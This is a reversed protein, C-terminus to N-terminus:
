PERETEPWLRWSYSILANDIAKPISTNMPHVEENALWRTRIHGATVGQVVKRFCALIHWVADFSELPETVRNEDDLYALLGDYTYENDIPPILDPMLHHLLKSSGVVFAGSAMIKSRAPDALVTFIEQLLPRHQDTLHELDISRCRELSELSALHILARQFDAFDKLRAGGQNMGWATLVGYLLEQYHLDNALWEAFPRSHQRVHRIAAQHFYVCPGKRFNDSSRRLPKAVHPDSYFDEVCEDFHLIFDDLSGRLEITAPRNM